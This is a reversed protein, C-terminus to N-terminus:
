PIPRVNSAVEDVHECPPMQSPTWFSRGEAIAVAGLFWEFSNGHTDDILCSAPALVVALMSFGLSYGRYSPVDHNNGPLLSCLVTGHMLDEAAFIQLIFFKVFELEAM